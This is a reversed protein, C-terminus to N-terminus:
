VLEENKQGKEDLCLMHDMHAVGKLADGEEYAPVGGYLGYRFTKHTDGADTFNKQLLIDMPRAYKLFFPHGNGFMKTFLFRRGKNKTDDWRTIFTDNM